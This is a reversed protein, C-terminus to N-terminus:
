LRAKRPNAPDFPQNVPGTSKIDLKPRRVTRTGAAEAAEQRGRYLRLERIIADLGEPDPIDEIPSNLLENVSKPSAESLADSVPLKPEM